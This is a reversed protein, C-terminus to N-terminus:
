IRLRNRIRKIRRDFRWHLGDWSWFRHIWRTDESARRSYGKRRIFKFPKGLKKNTYFDDTWDGAFLRELIKKCREDHSTFKPLYGDPFYPWGMNWHVLKNASLRYAEINPNLIKTFASLASQCKLLYRCRSLLVCDLLAHEGKAFREQGAVDKHHTVEGSNIIRLAPYLGRIKQVFSYEDTALFVTKIEPHRAIFDATLDLFDQESVYNTEISTNHKDTGRYHLGLAGDLPPFEDARRIIREPVSFFKRWLASAYEWDGGLACQQERRLQPLNVEHTAPAPTYNLDLLGPIAIDDEARGYLASRIAWEPRLGRQDLYPLIEFPWLFVMGFLGERIEETRTVIRFNGNKM